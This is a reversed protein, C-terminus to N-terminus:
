PSTQADDAGPQANGAVPTFYTIVQKQAAQKLAAADLGGERKPVKMFRAMGPALELYHALAEEVAVPEEILQGQALVRRRKIELVVEAGGRLNRWWHRDRDSMAWYRESGDPQTERVYNIPTTFSKGSKRGTFTLALISGSMVGHLPSNLVGLMFRNFGM